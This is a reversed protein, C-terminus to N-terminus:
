PRLMLASKMTPHGALESFLKYIAERKKSTFGDRSDLAMRVKVPMFEKDLTTKDALRWKKILKRDGQFLDILFVTELIDRMVLAGNQSYGSLALKLSAGFANFTRIGLMQIVKLDENQTNFQRLVDALNMAQEIAAFHLSLRVDGAIWEIAKRRLEEEQRHLDILNDPIESPSMLHESHLLNVGKDHAM